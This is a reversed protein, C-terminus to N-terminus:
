FRLAFKAIMRRDEKSVSGTGVEEGYTSFQFQFKESALELGATWYSSQNYGARLFAIDWFNYEFGAHYLKKNNDIQYVNTIDRMEFTWSSRVGKNHIPFVAFAADITQKVAEPRSTTTMRLGSMKDFSTGGLDRAVVALTPLWYWPAALIISADNSMGVGETTATNSAVDMSTATSLLPQNLEVRSIIKANLGIKVRGDFLRLNYGLLFAYDSRYFTDITTGDASEIAGLTYNGLFGIGFNKGVFSPMVQARAYYYENKKVDLSKKVQSLDWPISIPSAGSFTLIRDSIEIEPDFMTGYFDRVKGLAAPNIALATEDNTVAICAGGMALCRAGNYFEFRERAQALPHYGTLGFIIIYILFSIRKM